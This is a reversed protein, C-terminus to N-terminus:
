ENKRAIGNPMNCHDECDCLEGIVDFNLIKADMLFLVFLHFICVFLCM